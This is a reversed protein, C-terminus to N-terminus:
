LFLTVAPSREEDAVLSVTAYVEDPHPIKLTTNIDPKIIDFGPDENLKEISVEREESFSQEGVQATVTKHTLPKLTGFRFTYLSQGTTLFSAEDDGTKDEGRLSVGYQFTNGAEAGSFALKFGVRVKKKDSNSGPLVQLTVDKIEAM